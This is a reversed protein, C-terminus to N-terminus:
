IIVDYQSESGFLGVRLVNALDQGSIYIPCFYDPHKRKYKM